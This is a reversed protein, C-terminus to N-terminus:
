GVRTHVKATAIDVFLVHELKLETLKTGKPVTLHVVAGTDVVTYQIEAMGALANNENNGSM